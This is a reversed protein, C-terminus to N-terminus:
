CLAGYGPACSATYKEQLGSRLNQVIHVQVSKVWKQLYIYGQQDMTNSQEIAMMMMGADAQDVEDDHDFIEEVEAPEDNPRPVIKEIMM